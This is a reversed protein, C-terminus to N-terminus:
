KLRLITCGVGRLRYKRTRVLTGNKIMKKLDPDDKVQVTHKGNVYLGDLILIHDLLALRRQVGPRM